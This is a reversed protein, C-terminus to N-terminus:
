RTRGVRLRVPVWSLARSLHREPRRRLGALAEEPRRLEMGSVAEAANWSDVRRGTQPVRRPVRQSVYVKTDRPLSNPLRSLDVLPLRAERLTRTTRVLSVETARKRAISVQRTRTDEKPATQLTSTPRQPPRFIAAANM